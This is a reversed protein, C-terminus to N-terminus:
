TAQLKQSSYAECPKKGANGRLLVLHIDRDPQEATRNREAYCPKDLNGNM